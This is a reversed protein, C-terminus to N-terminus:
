EFVMSLTPRSFQNVPKVVRYKDVDVTAVSATGRPHRRESTLMRLYSLNCRGRTRFLKGSRLYWNHWRAYRPYSEYYKPLPPVSHTHTFSFNRDITDQFNSPRIEYRKLISSESLTRSVVFRCFFKFAYGFSRDITNCWSKKDNLINELGFSSPNELSEEVDAEEKTYSDEMETLYENVFNKWAKSVM